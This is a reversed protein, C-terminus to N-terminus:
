PSTSKGASAPQDIPVDLLPRVAQRGDAGGAFTRREVMLFVLADDVGHDLLRGSADFDHGAGAGVARALRDTQGAGSAAGAGVAGEHDAGVVVLRRLFAVIPM